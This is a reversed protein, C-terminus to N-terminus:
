TRMKPMEHSSREIDAYVAVLLDIVFPHNNHAAAITNMEAAASNWFKETNKPPFYKFYYEYAAKFHANITPNKPQM